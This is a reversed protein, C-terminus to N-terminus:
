DEENESSLSVDEFIYKCCNEAGCHCAISEVRGGHRGCTDNAYDFTIEENKKINRVAILNLHMNDPEGELMFATNPKCSHNVFRSLNSYLFTDITYSKGEVMVEYMYAAELRADAIAQDEIWEGIYEIVKQGAKIKELTRVGWGRGHEDMFLLMPISKNKKKVENPRASGTSEGETINKTIYEFDLPISNYNVNNEIEIHADPDAVRIKKLLESQLNKQDEELDYFFHRLVLPELKEKFKEDNLKHWLICHIQFELPDFTAVSLEKHVACKNRLMYGRIRSKLRHRIALLNQHIDEHLVEEQDDLYKRFVICNRLNALPEWTNM